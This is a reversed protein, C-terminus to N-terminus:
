PELDVRISLLRDGMLRVFLANLRPLNRQRERPDDDPMVQATGTRWRGRVRIRVRPDAKINKVYQAKHGQEAVIWFEDGSLGNSIPTRRPEGSKRGTTELLATGPFYGAVLKAIPNVVYRQLPIVVTRKDM